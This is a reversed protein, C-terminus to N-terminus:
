VPRVSLDDREKWWQVRQGPGPSFKVSRDPFSVWKPAAPTRPADIFAFLRCYPQLKAYMLSDPTAIYHLHTHTRTNTHAQTLTYTHTRACLVCPVSFGIVSCFPIRFTVSQSPIVKGSQDRVSLFWCAGYHGKGWESVRSSFTYLITDRERKRERKSIEETWDDVCRTDLRQKKKVSCLKVWRVPWAYRKLRLIPMGCVNTPM